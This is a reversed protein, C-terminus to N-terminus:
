QRLVRSRRTPKWFICLFGLTKTSTNLEMDLYEFCRVLLIIEFVPWIFMINLIILYNHIDYM